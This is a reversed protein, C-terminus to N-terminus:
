SSVERESAADIEVTADGLGRARGAYYVVDLALGAVGAMVMRAMDTQDDYPRQSGALLTELGSKMAEAAEELRVLVEDRREAIAANAAQRLDQAVETKTM